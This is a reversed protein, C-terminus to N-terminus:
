TCSPISSCRPAHACIIPLATGGNRVRARPRASRGWRVVSGSGLAGVVTLVRGGIRTRHAPRANRRCGRRIRQAPHLRRALAVGGRLERHPGLKVPAPKAETDVASRNRAEPAACVDDERSPSDGDVDVAAEPVSARIVDGPGLCVRVPPPRLDLGIAGPIAVSITPKDLRSPSDQAGPLVLIGCQDRVPHALRDLTGVPADNGGSVPRNLSGPNLEDVRGQMIRTRNGSGETSGGTELALQSGRRSGADSQMRSGSRRDRQRRTLPGVYHFPMV